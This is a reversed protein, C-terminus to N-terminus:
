LTLISTELGFIVSIARGIVVLENRSTFGSTAMSNADKLHV